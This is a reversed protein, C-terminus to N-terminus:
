AVENELFVSFDEVGDQISNVNLRLYDGAELDTVALVGSELHMDGDSFDAEIPGTLISTWAGVGRKYEIDVSVVGSTGAVKVVLRAGTLSLNIDVRTFLLGDYAFTGNLLGVVVFEIPPRSTAGVESASVRADLDILNGRIKDFLPKATPEGVEIEEETIPVQPM